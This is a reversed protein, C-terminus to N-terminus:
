IAEACSPCRVELRGNAYVISWGPTLPEAAPTTAKGCICARPASLAAEREWRSELAAVHRQEDTLRKM